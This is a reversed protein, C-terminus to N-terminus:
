HKAALTKLRKSLINRMEALGEGNPLYTLVRHHRLDFPVDSISQALPVVPRGLTHAIGTEYMVNPNKGSFDVVVISSRFLLNFIDQIVDSEEWLEDARRCRLGADKCALSIAEFVSSFRSDFPMMVSVLDSEPEGSPRRFVKPLVVLPPSDSDLSVSDPAGAGQMVKEKDLLGAEALVGILDEGKVAWHTRSLEYNGIDLEWNLKELEALPIPEVNPDLKYSIGVKNQRTAIGTLWGFMVPQERFKEYAFLAPISALKDIAESDLKRFRESLLPSTHEFVRSLHYVYNSREWAGEEATVLLNYM